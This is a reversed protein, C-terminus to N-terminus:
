VPICTDLSESIVKQRNSLFEVEVQDTTILHEHLLDIRRLLSIGAEGESRYFDLFINTDIFVVPPRPKAM